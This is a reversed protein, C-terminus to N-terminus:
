FQKTGRMVGHTAQDMPKLEILDINVHAPQCLVWLVAHGIDEPDLLRCDKTHAKGKETDGDYRNVMFQTAGLGPHIACTRVDKDFLELRLGRMVTDMASKAACYDVGGVYSMYHAISGIAIFNGHTKSLHPAAAQAAEMLAITNVQFVRNWNARDGDAIHDKGIALGSNYIVAHLDGHEAAAHDIAQAIEGPNMADARLLGRLGVTVVRYGASANLVKVIGEGFGGAGAGIVIITKKM